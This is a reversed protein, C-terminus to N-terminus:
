GKLRAYIVPLILWFERKYEAYYGLVSKSQGGNPINDILPMSKISYLMM